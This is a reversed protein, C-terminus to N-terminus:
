KEAGRQMDSTDKGCRHCLGLSPMIAEPVSMNAADSNVAMQQVLGAFADLGICLHLPHESINHVHLHVGLENYIREPHGHMLEKVWQQGTLRSTHYPQAWSSGYLQCLVVVLQVVTAVSNM